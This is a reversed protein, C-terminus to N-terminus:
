PEAFPERRRRRMVLAPFLFHFCCFEDSDARLLASLAAFVANLCPTDGRKFEPLACLTARGASDPQACGECKVHWETCFPSEKDQLFKRSRLWSPNRIQPIEGSAYELIFIDRTTGPITAGLRRYATSSLRSRAGPICTALGPRRRSEMAISPALM